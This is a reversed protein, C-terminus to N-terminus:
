QMNEPEAPGQNAVNVQLLGPDVSFIIEKGVRLVTLTRKETGPILNSDKFTDTNIVPEGNYRVVRDGLKLGIKEGLGGSLVESIIVKTRAPSGETSWFSEKVVRDFEDYQWTQRAFGEKNVLPEGNVGFYAKEIINGRKDFKQTLKSFGSKSVIPKGDSGFYAKEIVNGRDDVKQTWKSYGDKHLTPQGDVGFYAQELVKGRDDFKQTLKSYNDTYLSPQGNVGFYTEEIINGRDDVKRTLKSFGDKLLIPQGDSGFYAWEISNGRGDVKRTVKSYDDKTPQGDSGFYAWEILNGRADFKQTLRSYGFTSLTPQGDIGFYAKELLNGRDDFKQIQKSYGDKSLTPQGDIGFYALELLNGRDDFKQTLKSYGDKSVTLLGNIGFYAQEIVKGRDDVKQTLKSYGNKHLIPQGDRGFYAKEIVKDRDDIKQKVKSYGYKSVTPQGDGEFYAEEVINGRDDVNKTLKSFGDRHLIPQGDSGFYALELLNGRDDFKQTLKSYGDKNVIPKGDRGFYTEEVVNGREDIKRTVKSSGNIFITPQGVTDFFAMEIVTGQKDYKLTGKAYGFNNFTPKDIIDFFLEELLNGWDDVEWTTKFFGFKHLTPQGVTDFFAKEIVNGNKDHKLTVKAYGEKSLTPQGFTDLFAIEIVNGNKDYKFAAKAFGDKIITPQDDTGFYAEELLNGWDDFKNTKKFFGDKNLTPQGNVGFYTAEIINGQKDYKLTAKALGNKHLAPKGDSGLYTITEPLGQDNFTKRIGYIEDRNPKPKWGVDLFRIEEELGANLGTNPRTFVVYAAGAGSRAQPRGQEELYQATTNDEKTYMLKIVLNGQRNYAKETSVRGKADREFVYRCEKQAMQTILDKGRPADLYTSGSHQQTLEGRGNVILVENILGKRGRRLFLYSVDRHSAQAASLPGIGVPAGWRKTMTTYYERHDLYNADWYWLGSMVLSFLAGIWAIRWLARRRKIRKAERSSTEIYRIEDDGLKGRQEVLLKEAATLPKGPPLLLSLLEEQAQWLTAATAIRTRIRLFDRNQEVWERAQGWHVLLSEHALGVVTGGDDSRDTVMLRAAVFADVLQQSAPTSAVQEQPMRKATLSEKEGLGLTVLNALVLDLATDRETESLSGFVDEARRAIAGSLGGMAEYAAFTLVQPQQKDRSCRTYLEELAFELLPLAQPNRSAADRLEDDLRGPPDGQEEFVLGAMAAPQRIMQGIEAPTPPGLEYQGEGKKLEQLEALEQARIYFDSRMTALVWICGSRALAALARVFGQRQGPTVKELTFIEEMQDVVLALRAEPPRALKEKDRVERALRQLEPRVALDIVAEPSKRWHQALEAPSKAKLGPLSEEQMLAQVLGTLLDGGADSPRFVSRRWFGIGEIVGPQILRPVVGARVLSSKGSGSMGMVLVFANGDQAQRRLVQLIESIAQTRGCFIPAHQFDFIELGRFPSESVWVRKPAQGSTRPPLQSLHKQILSRLHQELKEEFEGASDFEHFASTFSGGAGKFWKEIFADVLQKQERRAQYEEDSLSLDAFAKATKRYVLLDPLGQRQYGSIADEFEYETGSTYPHGDPHILEPGLRTGLRSWLIIIVVDAESPRLIANIEEQFSATARLPQHEWFFPTLELREAFERQLRQMVLAALEREEGVDGPSSIFIRM